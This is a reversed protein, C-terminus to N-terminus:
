TSGQQVFQFAYLSAEQLIFRIRVPKNWLASVDTQGQWAVTQWIQEPAGVVPDCDSAAFGPYPQFHPDLLEVQVFGYSCAANIQLLNGAFVFQRTLVQGSANTPRLEAWGDERLILANLSRQWREPVSAQARRSEWQQRAAQFAAVPVIDQTADAGFWHQKDPIANYLIHTKGQHVLQGAVTPAVFGYDCSGPDRNAAWPELGGARQWRKGDRSSYLSLRAHAFDRWNTDNRVNWLPESMFETVLGIYLDGEKRVSMDHFELHPPLNPDWDASLVVEKPSWHIFDTSEQRGVQRKRHLFNWHHSYQSYAIWRQIAEDWIIRQFHHHRQPSDESIIGWRLGDPSAAVSSMIRQGRARAKDHPNYVLLYKRAPDSQDQNRVLGIHHGSDLLVINTAKHEQYPHCDTSLPKEWHLCDRSEAYCLAQGHDGYADEALPIVYWLKFKDEEPDHLAATPFPNGRAEWPLDGVTFIPAAPREPTPFHRTVDTLQDLIFNDLFLQKQTGIHLFPVTYNPPFYPYSRQDVPRQGARTEALTRELDLAETPNRPEPLNSM